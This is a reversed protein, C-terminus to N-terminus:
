DQPGAILPPLALALVFIWASLFGLVAAVVVPGVGPVTVLAIVGFALISGPIWYAARRTLLRDPLAAIAFAAPIQGANLATLAAGIMGARGTHQLYDPIFAN